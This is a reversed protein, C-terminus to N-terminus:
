RIKLSLSLSDNNGVRCGILERIGGYGSGMKLRNSRRRMTM